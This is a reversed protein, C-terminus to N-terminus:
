CNGESQQKSNRKNTNNETRFMTESLKPKQLLHGVGFTMVWEGHGLTVKKMTDLPLSEEKEM